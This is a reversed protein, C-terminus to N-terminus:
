VLCPLPEPTRDRGETRPNSALEEGHTDLVGQFTQGHRVCQRRRGLAVAPRM